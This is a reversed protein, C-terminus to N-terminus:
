PSIHWPLQQKEFLGGGGVLREQAAQSRDGSVDGFGGLSNERCAAPHSSCSGEKM